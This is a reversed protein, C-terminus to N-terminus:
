EDKDRLGIAKGLIIAAPVSLLLWLIFLKIM